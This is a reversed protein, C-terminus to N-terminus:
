LVARIHDRVAIMDPFSWFHSVKQDAITSGVPSDETVFVRFSEAADEAPHVSAYDTVFADNDDSANPGWFTDIFSGLASDPTACGNPLLERDGCETTDWEI